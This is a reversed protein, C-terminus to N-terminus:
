RGVENGAMQCAPTCYFTSGAHEREHLDIVLHALTSGEALTAHALANADETSPAALTRTTFVTM